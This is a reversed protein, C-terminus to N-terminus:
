MNKLSQWRRITQYDKRPCPSVCVCSLAVGRMAQAVRKRENQGM